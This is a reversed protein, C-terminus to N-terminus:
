TGPGFGTIWSVYMIGNARMMTYVTYSGNPTSNTPMYTWSTVGSPTTQTFTGSACSTSACTFNCSGTATGTVILTYSGGELLNSFTFQNGVGNCAASTYQINGNNWNITTSSGANYVQSHIQGAVDLAAAPSTVGIGVKGTSRNIDGASAANSWPGSAGSVATDVYQKNVADTLNVPPLPIQMTLLSTAPYVIGNITAGSSLASQKNYFTSWDASTLYGNQSSSAAQLSVTAVGSGSTSVSIPDTGLVSKVISDTIGYASLTTPNTGATVRGKADVTVSKYTGASVGSAALTPNPYTGSLDGGAAGTPAGGGGGGGAPTACSLSTGNGTLFDGATCTPLAAKAFAMVSSDTETYTFTTNVWSTGNYKLFQGSAPTSIIVDSLKDLNYDGERATINGTRGYVSLVNRANAIKQWEDGSFSIWDGVAYTVSAITGAVSIIYYDGADPTGTPVTGGAASFTGKYALGNINRPIWKNTNADFSLVDKDNPTVLCNFGKGNLNSDCLSFNVTYTTSGRADSLIFNFVKGAAFSVNALTNAIMQTKTSSEIALATETVGEVVKVGTVASLNTGTFVFQNNILQVNALSTTGADKLDNKSRITIRGNEINCASMITALILTLIIKYKM